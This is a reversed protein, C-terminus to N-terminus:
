GRYVIAENVANIVRSIFAEDKDELAPRETSASCLVLRYTPKQLILWAIGAALLLLSGVIVDKGGALAFIGLVILVIPWRRSPTIKLSSVSTIGSIAFTQAPVIFRSSTVVVQRENLFTHEEVASPVPHSAVAM